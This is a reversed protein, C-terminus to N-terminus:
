QRLRYAPWSEPATVGDAHPLAASEVAAIRGASQSHQAHLYGQYPYSTGSLVPGPLDHWLDAGVGQRPRCESSQQPLLRTLKSAAPRCLHHLYATVGAAGRVCCADAAPSWPRSGAGTVRRCCVGPTAPASARWRGPPPVRDTNGGRERPGRAVESVRSGHHRGDAM